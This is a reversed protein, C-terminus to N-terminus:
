PAGRPEIVDAPEGETPGIDWGSVLRLFDDSAAIDMLLTDTSILIDLDVTAIAVGIDSWGEAFASGARAVSLSGVGPVGLGHLLASALLTSAYLGPGLRDGLFRANRGQNKIVITLTFGLKGVISRGTQDPALDRWALGLWPTAKAVISKFEDITLPSPVLEYAWQSAAFATRLRTEVAQHVASIPDPAPM